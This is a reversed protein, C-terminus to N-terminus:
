WTEIHRYERNSVDEQTLCPAPTPAVPTPRLSPWHDCSCHNVNHNLRIKSIKTDIKTRYWGHKGLLRFVLNAVAEQAWRGLNKPRIGTEKVQHLFMKESALSLEHSRMVRPALCVTLAKCETTWVNRFLREIALLGGSGHTMGYSHFVVM